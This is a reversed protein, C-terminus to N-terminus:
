ATPTTTIPIRRPRESAPRPLQIVLVGSKARAEVRSADVGFPLPVTRSFRGYPRERRIAVASEDPPEITTTGSVTLLTDHVSVSVDQPTLGPLEITVVAGEQNAWVNLLPHEAPRGPSLADFLRNVESQVRRMERLPDRSPDGFGSRTFWDSVMDDEM